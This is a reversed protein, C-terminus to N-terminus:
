NRLGGLLENHREATSAVFSVVRSSFDEAEYAHPRPVEVRSLVFDAATIMSGADLDVTPVSGIEFAEPREIQRRCTIAPFNIISSEESITGSDSVVIGSDRQLAMYSSFELPEVFNFSDLSIRFEEMRTRTRPHTTVVVPMDLHKQLLGLSHILKELRLKTDVNEQRHFSAVIYNKKSLSLQGLIQSEEIKSGQDRIVEPMPSGTVSISKPHIGEALLNRRANESYALNFDSFHDIVKRNLEEPVMRDFSRNGAELHYCAVGLQRAVLASLCSNTDGLYILAQIKRDSLIKELGSMSSGLFSGLSSRDNSTGLVVDPARVDLDQFQNALLAESFNQNTSVLTHEFFSDLQAITSSLKILEPRTGLLTAVRLKTKM